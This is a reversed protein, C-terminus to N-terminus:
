AGEEGFYADLPLRDRDAPKLAARETLFARLNRLLAETRRAQFQAVDGGLLATFAVPDIGHSALLDVDATQPRLDDLTVAPHMIFLACTKELESSGNAHPAILTPLAEGAALLTSVPVELGREEGVLFRPGLGCMAVIEIDVRAVGRRYPHLGAPLDNADVAPLLHLLRQVSGHEDQDIAQWKPRDTRNDTKHDGSLTGRWFWRGLLERNRAHPKPHISFFRALTFLAGTYPLLDIHPVGADEALFAITRSLSTAVKDFLAPVAEPSGQVQAELSRGPDGGMVAIATREIHRPDIAGFGLQVLDDRVRDIPGKGGQVGAHLAQFVEYSELARGRRNIRAFIQKLLTDDHGDYPVLYAPLTYERIRRAIDDARDSLEDPMSSERLWRNLASSSSLVHTPLWSPPPARRRVGLVFHNKELDFFIPRHVGAHDELLAMALTSLRQQGDVVWLADSVAPVEVAYGGLVIRDAPAESRALLLTGVPYGDQLSDLLLRRDEDNWKFGRQFRPIRVRGKRIAELLTAVSFTKTELEGSGLPSPEERMAGHYGM